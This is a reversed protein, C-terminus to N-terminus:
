LSFLQIEDANRIRCNDGRIVGDSRYCLCQQRTAVFNGTRVSSFIECCEFFNQVKCFSYNENNLLCIKNFSSLNNAWSSFHQAKLMFKLVNKAKKAAKTLYQNGYPSWIERGLLKQPLQNQTKKASNKSGALLPTHLLWYPIYVICFGSSTSVARTNSVWSHFRTL